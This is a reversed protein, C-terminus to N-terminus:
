MWAGTGGVEIAWWWRHEGFEERDDGKAGEGSDGGDGYSLLWGWHESLETTSMCVSLIPTGHFQSRVLVTSGTGPSLGGRM